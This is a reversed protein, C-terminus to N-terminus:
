IPFFVEGSFPLFSESIIGLRIHFAEISQSYFWSILITWPVSYPFWVYSVPKLVLKTDLLDLCAALKLPISLDWNSFPQCPSVTGSAFSSYSLVLAGTSRYFRPTLGKGLLNIFLPPKARQYLFSGVFISFHCCDALVNMSNLRM